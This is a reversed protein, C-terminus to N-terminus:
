TGIISKLSARRAGSGCRGFIVSFKTGDRALSVLASYLATLMFSASFNTIASPM